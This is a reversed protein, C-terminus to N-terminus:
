AARDRAIRLVRTGLSKVLDRKYAVDAQVDASPEAAQQAIDTAADITADSIPQGELAEEAKAIRKIRPGAGVFGFRVNEFKSNAAIFRCGAGVIAYDGKRQSVEIFGYGENAGQKPIRIETLIENAKVATSLLDVFFSDAPVSRTSEPGVLVFTAELLTLALPVESAPDHHCVNGGITGRNRVNHHSVNSYAETLLPCADRVLDSSLVANHRTGAGIVLTDGDLRIFELDDIHGIDILVEPAALRFNMLPILSQGGALLKAQDGHRALGYVADQITAARVYEFRSPKM